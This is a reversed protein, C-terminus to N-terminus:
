DVNAHCPRVSPPGLHTTYLRIWGGEYTTLNRRVAPEGATFFVDVENEVRANSGPPKSAVPNKLVDNDHPLLLGVTSKKSTQNPDYVSGAAAAASVKFAESGVRDAFQLFEKDLIEKTLEFLEQM